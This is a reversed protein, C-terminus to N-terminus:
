EESGTLFNRKQFVALINYLAAWQQLWDSKLSYVIIPNTKLKNKNKILLNNVKREWFGKRECVVLLLTAFAFKITSKSAYKAKVAGEACQSYAQLRRAKPSENNILMTYNLLTNLIIFFLLTFFLVCAVPGYLCPSFVSVYVAFNCFTSRFLATRYTLLPNLKSILLTEHIM